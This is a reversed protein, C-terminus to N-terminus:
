VVRHRVAPEDKIRRQQKEPRVGAFLPPMRGSQFEAVDALSKTGRESM